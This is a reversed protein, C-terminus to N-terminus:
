LREELVDTLFMWHKWETDQHICITHLAEKFAIYRYDAKSGVHIVKFPPGEKRM